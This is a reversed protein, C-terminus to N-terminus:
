FPGILTHIGGGGGPIDDGLWLLDTLGKSTVQHVSADMLAVNGGGSGHVDNTWGVKPMDFPKSFVTAPSIGSSCGSGSGSPRIHRDMLLMHNQCQDFPLLTNNNGVGADIGLGYSCAANQFNPHALGSKPNNGFTTAPNLTKRKDGPCALVAPSNLQNSIWHYQFWLNQYDTMQYNGGYNTLTRWPPKTAEFDNYWLNYALAIQKLNATCKVRLGKQKARSLAPLILGALIAIIAIVVLLEILTFAAWSKSKSNKM